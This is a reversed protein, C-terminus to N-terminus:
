GGDDFILRVNYLYMENKILNMINGREIYHSNSNESEKVIGYYYDVPNNWMIVDYLKDVNPITLDGKTNNTM